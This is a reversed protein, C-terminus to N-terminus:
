SQSPANEIPEMKLAPIGDTMGVKGTSRYTDRVPKLSRKQM